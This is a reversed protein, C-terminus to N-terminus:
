VLAATQAPSLGVSPKIITGIIPRGKVGALRRTGPIGFQPGAYAAAFAEPLELDILRVGSLERLEYLNGAVTALLNPLSPGMNALPFAIEIEARRYQPTGSGRPAQSGPLSPTAVVDLETIREVRASHRERLEDTEGPVRIFTGSSQEGALIAVAHELPHPTEIRYTAKVYTQM